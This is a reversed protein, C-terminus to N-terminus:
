SLVVVTDNPDRQAEPVYLVYKDETQGVFHNKEMVQLEV